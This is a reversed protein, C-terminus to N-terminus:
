SKNPLFSKPATMIVLLETNETLIRAVNSFISTSRQIISSATRKGTGHDKDWCIASEADDDEEEEEEGMKFYYDFQGLNVETNEGTNM